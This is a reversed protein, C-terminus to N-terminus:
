TILFTLLKLDLIQLYVIYDFIKLFKFLKIMM